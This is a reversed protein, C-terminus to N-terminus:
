FFTKYLKTTEFEARDVGHLIKSLNDGLLLEVIDQSLQLHEVSKFFLKGIETEKFEEIKPAEM